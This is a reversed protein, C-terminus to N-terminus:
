RSPAEVALCAAIAARQMRNKVTVRRMPRPSCRKGERVRVTPRSGLEARVVNCVLVDVALRKRGAHLALARDVDLFRPRDQPPHEFPQGSKMFAADSVSVELEFIHDDRPAGLRLLDEDDSPPPSRSRSRVRPALPCECYRWGRARGLGARGLLNACRRTAVRPRRRM